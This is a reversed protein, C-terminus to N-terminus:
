ALRFRTVICNGTRPRPVVHDLAKLEGNRESRAEVPRVDFEVCCPRRARVTGAITLRSCTEEADILFLGRLSVGSRPIRDAVVVAEASRIRVAELDEQARRACGRKGVAAPGDVAGHPIRRRVHLRSDPLRSSRRGDTGTRRYEITRRFGNGQKSQSENTQRRTETRAAARALCTRTIWRFNHPKADVRTWARTWSREAWSVRLRTTPRFGSCSRCPKLRDSCGTRGPKPARRRPLRRSGFIDGVVAASGLGFGSLARALNWVTSPRVDEEPTGVRARGGPRLPESAAPLEGLMSRSGRGRPGFPDPPHGPAGVISSNFGVEAEADEVRGSGDLKCEPRNPQKPPSSAQEGRGSPVRWSSSPPDSCRTARLPADASVPGHSGATGGQPSSTAGDPGNGARACALQPVLPWAAYIRAGQRFLQVHYYRAGAVTPLRLVPAGATRPVYGRNKLTM